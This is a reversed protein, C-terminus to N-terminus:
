RLEPPPPSRGFRRLLIMTLGHTALAVTLGEYLSEHAIQWLFLFLGACLWFSMCVNCAIPKAGRAYLAKVGPLIRITEILGFLILAFVVVAEILKLM